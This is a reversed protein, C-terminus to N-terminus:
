TARGGKPEDNMMTRLEDLSYFTGRWYIGGQRLTLLSSRVLVYVLLLAFVPMLVVEGGRYPTTKRVYYLYVAFMLAICLGNAAGLWGGAWVALSPFVFMLLQGIVAATLLSVRYRLGAFLNKELGKIAAKLNPYWEVALHARGVAVRQRLGARKVRMGLELDDDPRLAIAAHTGIEEYATRTILNFAGIGMGEKHQHDLNPKWMWKYLGLSFMFFHVFGRLWVGNALMAPFLSLHDARERQMHAAASRFAHPEFVVDADTFLFWEGSAKQVGSWLAHNKGLWGQPLQEIHMVQVPVDPRHERAWAAMREMEEGTRDESRDNVAVLEFSGYQQELITRMTRAISDAEEKAAVIVSLRPERNSGQEEQRPLEPILPLGRLNIGFMALWYLLALLTLGSWFWIM